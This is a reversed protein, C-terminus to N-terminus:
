DTIVIDITFCLVMDEEEDLLTWKAQGEIQCLFYEIEFSVNLNSVFM